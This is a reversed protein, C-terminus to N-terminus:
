NIIILVITINLYVHSLIQDDGDNDYTKIEMLLCMIIMMVDMVMSFWLAFSWSYTLKEDTNTNSVISILPLLLCCPLGLENIRFITLLAILKFSVETIKANM